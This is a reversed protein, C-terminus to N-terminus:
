RWQVIPTDHCQKTATQFLTCEVNVTVPDSKSELGHATSVVTFTYSGKGKLVAQRQGSDGILTTPTVSDIRVSEAGQADWTFQVAQGQKILTKDVRIHPKPPPVAVPEDVKVMVSKVTPVNAANYATLTYTHDQQPTDPYEGKPLVDGQESFTIRNAGTVNWSIKVSQGKTIHASSISLDIGSADIVKLPRIQVTRIRQDTGFINSAVIVLETTQQLGDKIIYSGDAAPIAAKVPQIDIYKGRAAKWSVTIAQGVDATEPDIFVQKINPKAVKPIIFILAVIVLPAVILMWMPIVPSQLFMAEHTQTEQDVPTSHIKFPRPRSQGFWHSKSAEASLRLTTQAGPKLEIRPSSEQNQDKRFLFSLEREDDSASLTFAAPRNGQNQLSVSYKVRKRGSAKAPM